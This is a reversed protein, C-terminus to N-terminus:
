DSTVTYNVVDSKGNEEIFLQGNPKFDFYDGIRGAYNVAHNGLGVGTFSSDSLLKWKGPLGNNNEKSSTDKNCSLLFFIIIITEFQVLHKMNEKTSSRM